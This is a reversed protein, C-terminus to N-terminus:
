SAEKTRPSDQCAIMKDGIYLREGDASPPPGAIRQGALFAGTVDMQSVFRVGACPIDESAPAVRKVFAACSCAAGRGM